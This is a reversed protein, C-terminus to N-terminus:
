RCLRNLDLEVGLVSVVGTLPVHPDRHQWEDCLEAVRPSVQNLTGDAVHKFFQSITDDSWFSQLFSYTDGYAGLEPSLYEPPALPKDPPVTYVGAPPTGQAVASSQAVALAIMSSLFVAKADMDKGGTMPAAAHM